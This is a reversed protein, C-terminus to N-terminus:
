SQWSLQTQRKRCITLGPAVPITALEYCSTDQTLAEIAQYATGCYGPQLLEPSPHTDHFLILGHAAVFPFFNHFDRLVAERSHDADIFLLDITLPNAHLERAFDATTAQVFRAKASLQMAAGAEQRIDVGILQEAYPIIRNFLECRYIGLEVYLHPQLVKALEVIFDEHWNLPTNGLLLLRRRTKNM